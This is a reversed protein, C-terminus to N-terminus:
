FDRPIKVEDGGGGGGGGGGGLLRQMYFAIQCSFAYNFLASLIVVFRCMASFLELYYICLM